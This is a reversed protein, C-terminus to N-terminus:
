ARDEVAGLDRHARPAEHDELHAGALVADGGALDLALVVERGLRSPVHGMADTLGHLALWQRSQTGPAHHGVLCPDTAARTVAVPMPELIPCRALGVLGGYEGM